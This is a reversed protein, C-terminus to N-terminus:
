FIQLKRNKMENFRRLIAEHPIQRFVKSEFALFSLNRLRENKMHVRGINGVRSLCSFSCEVVATSCAFTDIACYLEYVKKYASRVTYLRQAITKNKEKNEEGQRVRDLEQEVLYNKAMELEIESPMEVRSLVALPQLSALKMEQASSLAMLIADNEEFRRKMESIVIDLTDFYAKQILNEQAVQMSCDRRQNRRPQVAIDSILQLAKQELTGFQEETRLSEIKKVTARIVPVAEVYGAERSQLIKDAPKLIELLQKMFLMMYVFESKLICELIGTAKAIDEGNVKHISGNERIECLSTVIEKYNDHIAITSRYHGEWRTAILKKLSNGEYINRVKYHQFFSYIMMVQDFFIQIMIIRKMATILVLHLRHSFCHIYPIIRKFHDQVIKQVGGDDGSMVPAGDYCQSLLKNTNVNYVELSNLLVDSIGASLDDCTELGLVSEVPKGEFYYRAALSLCEANNRDKTGDLFVTFYDSSNVKEVIAQRTCFVAASILDKQIDPSKYTANKPILKMAKQLKEDKGLSFEFLSQFLGDENKTDIDWNGRFALENSALFIVVDLISQVYYQRLALVDGNLLQPIQKNTLKRTYMEQMSAIAVVHYSSRKHRKLGKQSEM